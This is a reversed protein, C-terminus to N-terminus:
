DIKAHRPRREPLRSRRKISNALSRIIQDSAGNLPLVMEITIGSLIDDHVTSLGAEISTFQLRTGDEFEMLIPIFPPVDSSNALRKIADDFLGAAEYSELKEQFQPHKRAASSPAFLSGLEIRGLESRTGHLWQESFIMFM